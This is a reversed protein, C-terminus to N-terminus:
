ALLEGESKPVIGPNGRELSILIDQMAASFSIGRLFQAISKLMFSANTAPDVTSARSRETTLLPDLAIHRNNALFSTCIEVCITISYSPVLCHILMISCISSPGCTDVSDM